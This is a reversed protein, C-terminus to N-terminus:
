DSLEKSYIFTGNQLIYVDELTVWDDDGPAYSILILEKIGDQNKDQFSFDSGGGAGGGVVLYDENIEGLENRTKVTEIKGLDWNISFLGHVIANAGPCTLCLDVIEKKGNDDLDFFSNIAAWSSWCELELPYEKRLIESSLIQRPNGGNRAIVGFYFKWFITGYPKEETEKVRAMFVVEDQGDGTIDENIFIADELNYQQPLFARITDIEGSHEGPNVNSAPSVLPLLLPERVEIREQFYWTAAGVFSALFILISLYIINSKGKRLFSM